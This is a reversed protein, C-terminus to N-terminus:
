VVFQKLDVNSMASYTRLRMRFYGGDGWGTSWSNAFTIVSNSLDKTDLEVAVAEVEHGGAFGSTPWNQNSDIFGNKDPQFFAELWPTGMLVPGWQLLQLFGHATQAWQYSKIMGRNKLVQCIALGSSGTDTPPWNGPYPDARTAESYLQVAFKEGAQANNASLGLATKGVKDYYPQTGLAGTGANGTCNGSILIKGNRRTVLTHYTPVEACYVMGDYHVVSVDHRREISSKVGKIHRISYESHHGEITRGKIVVTRPARIHVGVQGGALVILEALDDALQTSSTYHTWTGNQASGDGQRHGHLFHEITEATQEFVFRPVFKEAAYVGKLGLSEMHRYIRANEFTFRDKLELCNLGLSELVQRFYTKKREKTAAIQIKNPRKSTSTLMTGDALYIGLFELWVTMPVTLDVRQSSRKYGPIGPITYTDSARSGAYYVKPMLGVYWGLDSMNVFTYEKGLTRAREDWCRVLMKHDATVAFDHRQNSVQYLDGSFQKAIVRLPKEYTLRQTAPDVTALENETTLEPFPLWGRQTLVETEPDHCAGLQGQDLIPIVRDWHQDKLPTSMATASREVMYSLSRADLWLNRGLRMGDHVTEDFRRYLAGNDVLPM